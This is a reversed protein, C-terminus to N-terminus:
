CVGWVEKIALTVLGVFLILLSTCMIVMIINFLLDERFERWWKKIRKM